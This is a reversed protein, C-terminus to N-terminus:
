HNCIGIKNIVELWLLFRTIAISLFISIIIFWNFVIIGGERRNADFYTEGGYKRKPKLNRMLTVWIVTAFMFVVIFVKFFLAM